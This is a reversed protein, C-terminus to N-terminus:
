PLGMTRKGQEYVVYTISVAPVVKLLNPTLGKFLGRFGEEAVTKKTVDVIGTYTRPHLVTGQSQLRTRLVNLPYVASAGLAGSFGGTIAFYWAPLRIDEEHCGAAKARSAILNTKLAEFTGLDIAAYPFMGALGTPLGRYFSRLGGTSWMKKATLLILENGRLGGSVIECQMRDAVQLKLTDLPYVAFQSIMGAIGGTLYKSLGSNHNPDDNGEIKALTRKCAEYAGFRIASEPMVKVVNIGNGAFLSRIGGAAWLEKTANALPTWFGRAIHKPSGTKVAQVADRTAGTQAILFVKLRDLPATSTRSVIGSLAGVLFYGPKPVCEILEAKVIAWTSSEVTPSTRTIEDSFTSNSSGPPVRLPEARVQASPMDDPPIDITAPPLSIVPKRTHAIEFLAGFCSILFSKLTGLSHITEESIQVDGEPNMLYTSSYYSLVTKLTVTNAPIFLLFDRWEEFSIIGDNNTDVEAFFQELKSNPVALGAHKFANQLESKELSGDHNRDIRKFLDYLEREAQKVFTRFEHYQIQGDKNTDIARMVEQLLSDANKLPHDMNKLGKKLGALDIHGKAKTDLKRWLEELRADQENATENEMM